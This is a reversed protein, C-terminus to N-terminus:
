SPPGSSVESAEVACDPAGYVSDVDAADVDVRAEASVVFDSVLPADVPNM